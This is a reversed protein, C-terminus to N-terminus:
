FPLCTWLWYNVDCVTPVTDMVERRQWLSGCVTALNQKWIAAMLWGEFLSSRRQLRIQGLGFGDLSAFHRRPHEAAAPGDACDLCRGHGTWAPPELVLISRTSQLNLWTQASNVDEQRTFSLRASCEILSSRTRRQPRPTKLPLEERPESQVSNGPPVYDFGYRM